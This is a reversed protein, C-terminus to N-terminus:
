SFWIKYLNRTIIAQVMQGKFTKDSSPITIESMHIPRNTSSMLEFDKWIQEPQLSNYQEAWSKKKPAKGNAIAECIEPKYIHMQWGVIDIKCGREILENVQKDFFKMREAPNENLNLKVNKPFCKQAKQFSKFAYDAPMLHYRPGNCFLGGKNIYGDAYEELNENVLDWSEVKDGYYRAFYEIRNEFTRM